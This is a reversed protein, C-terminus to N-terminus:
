YFYLRRYSMLYRWKQFLVVKRKSKIFYLVKANKGKTVFKTPTLKTFDDAIYSLM